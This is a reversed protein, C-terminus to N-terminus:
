LTNFFTTQKVVNLLSLCQQTDRWDVDFTIRMKHEFGQFHTKRRVNVFLFFLKRYIFGYSGKTSKDTFNITSNDRLSDMKPFPCFMLTDLAYLFSKLVFNIIYKSFYYLLM